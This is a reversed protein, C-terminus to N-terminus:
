NPSYYHDGKMNNIKVPPEPSYPSFDPYGEKNYKVSIGDKNTYITSGDPHEKVTSLINLLYHM